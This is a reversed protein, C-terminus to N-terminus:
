LDDYLIQGTYFTDSFSRFVIQFRESFTRFVNQIRDSFTRFVIFNYNARFYGERPGSYKLNNM